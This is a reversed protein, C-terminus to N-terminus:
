GGIGKNLISSAISSKAVDGGLNRLTTPNNNSSQKPDFDIHVTDKEYTPTLALTLRKKDNTQAVMHFRIGSILINNNRAETEIYTFYEKLNDFTWWVSETEQTGLKAKISTNFENQMESLEKQSILNQPISM